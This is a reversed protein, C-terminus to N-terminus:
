GGCPPWALAEIQPLSEDLAADSLDRLDLQAFPKPYKKSGSYLPDYHHTLLSDVLQEWRGEAVASQWADVLEGGRRERLIELRERLHERWEASTLFHEYEAILHRIREERPPAIELVPSRTLAAWLPDPLHLNGVKRSEAEVYVPRAADCSELSRAILSEFFCQSPQPRDVYRGLLSSRHAALAELDLVQRGRAALHQLLRTKGSGTLGNIVRFGLAPCRRGLTAIVHRRYPKYGGALVTALSSSRQGGRWCCILPQYDRPKAEFHADLHAAINRSVIAAGLKRAEFADQKYLTGVEARQADDLVPLNVAGPIHDHAFEAPSRVDVIEDPVFDLPFEAHLLDRSV